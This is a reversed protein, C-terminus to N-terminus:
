HITSANRVAQGAYILFPDTIPEAVLGSKVANIVQVSTGGTFVNLSNQWSLKANLSTIGTGAVAVRIGEIRISGSPSSSGTVQIQVVNNTTDITTAGVTLGAPTVSIDSASANTIQLPSVDIVLTGSTAPGLTMSVIIPGTVETQGTATVTTPIGFGQFLGQAVLSGPLLFTLLLLFGAFKFKM